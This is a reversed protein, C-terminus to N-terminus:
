PTKRRITDNRPAGRRLLGDEKKAIALISQKATRECHRMSLSMFVFYNM